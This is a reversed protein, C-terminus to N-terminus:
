SGKKTLDQVDKVVVNTPSVSVLAASQGTANVVLYLEQGSVTFGLKVISPSDM